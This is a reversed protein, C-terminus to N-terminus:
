PARLELAMQYKDSRYASQVYEFAQGQRDFTIRELALLPTSSKIDLLRCEQRNPMRASVTQKAHDPRIGYHEAVTHYLSHSAKLKDVPFAKLHPSLHAIQIALPQEDATRLRTVRLVDNGKNIGLADATQQDAPVLLAELLRSGARFGLSRAEEVFGLVRDFVQELRQPLVYTGSGQRREVLSDAVLEEFARRVTMRSLKMQQALERESPLAEGPALSGDAIAMGLKEKLQLYAPTPQRRNINFALTM